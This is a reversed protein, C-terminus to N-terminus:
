APRKQKRRVFYAVLGFAVIAVSALITTDIWLLPFPASFSPSSKAVIFYRVLSKGTQGYVYTAYVVLNHSGQSLGGLTLNGSVTVNNHCDLSYGLWDAPKSVSFSLPVDSGDFVQQQTVSLIQIVPPPAEATFFVACSSHLSNVRDWSWGGWLPDSSYTGYFFDGSTESRFNLSHSEPSLEPLSFAFHFSGLSDLENRQWVLRGDLFCMISSKINPPYVGGIYHKQGDPSPISGSLEFSFRVDVNSAKCISSNLPKEVLIKASKIHPAELGIFNATASKVLLAGALASVLLALILSFAFARKM